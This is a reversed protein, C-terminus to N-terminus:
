EGEDVHPTPQTLLNGDVEKTLNNARDCVTVREVDAMAVEFWLVDQDRSIELDLNGIKAHSSKMLGVRMLEGGSASAGM